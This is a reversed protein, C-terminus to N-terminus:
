IPTISLVAAMRQQVRPVPDRERYTMLGDRLKYPDPPTALTPKREQLLPTRPRAIALLADIAVSSLPRGRDLWAEVRPWDTKSAAALCGWSEAIPEFVNEEIWSLADPSRFYSLSAM